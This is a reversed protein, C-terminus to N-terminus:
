YNAMMLSAISFLFHSHLALLSSSSLYFSLFLRLMIETITVGFYIGDSNVGGIVMDSGAMGGNPSLGFSIWGTTNICLEFTINGEIEDFGWRLTVMEDSDLHETFPLLPNEQAGTEMVLVLVLLPVALLCSMINVLVSRASKNKLLIHKGVLDGQEGTVELERM